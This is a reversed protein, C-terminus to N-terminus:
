AAEAVPEVKSEAEWEAKHAAFVNSFVGTRTAGVEIEECYAKFDADTGQRNAFMWKVLKPINTNGGGGGKGTGKPKSPMEVENAKCWAKISSLVKAETVGKMNKVFYDQVKQVEDYEAPAFKNEALKDFIQKDREPKTMPKDEFGAEILTAQYAKIAKPFTKFQGTKLIEIMTLDESMGKAHCSKVIELIPNVEAVEAETETETETNETAESMNSDEIHQEILKVLSAATDKAKHKIANARCVEKLAAKALQAKGKLSSDFVFEGKSEDCEAGTCIISYEDNIIAKM